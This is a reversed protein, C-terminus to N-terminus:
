KERYQNWILNWSRKVWHSIHHHNSYRHQTNPKNKNAYNKMCFLFVFIFIEQELLLKKPYCWSILDHHTKTEYTWITSSTHMIGDIEPLVCVYVYEVPTVNEDKSPFIIIIIIIASSNFLFYHLIKEWNIIIYKLYSIKKSFIFGFLIKSIYDRTNPSFIFLFFIEFIVHTKDQWYYKPIWTSFDFFFFVNVCVLM